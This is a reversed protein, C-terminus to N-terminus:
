LRALRWFREGPFDSGNWIDLVGGDGVFDRELRWFREDRPRSPQCVGFVNM